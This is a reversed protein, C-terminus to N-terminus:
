YFVLLLRVNSHPRDYNVNSEQQSLGVKENNGALDSMQSNNTQVQLVSM